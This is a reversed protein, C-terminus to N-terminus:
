QSGSIPRVRNLEYIRYENNELALRYNENIWAYLEPFQRIYDYDKQEGTAIEYSM